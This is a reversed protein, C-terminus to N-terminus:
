NSYTEQAKLHKIALLNFSFSPFYKLLLLRSIMVDFFRIGKFNVRYAGKDSSKKLIKLGTTGYVKYGNGKFERKKWGSLHVQHPNNGIPGQEVFGNPTEFIVLKDAWVEVQQLLKEGDSKTLHEINLISVVCDVKTTGTFEFIAKSIQDFDMIDIQRRTISHTKSEPYGLDILLQRIELSACIAGQPNTGAGLDLTTRVGYKKYLKKCIQNQHVLGIDDTIQM